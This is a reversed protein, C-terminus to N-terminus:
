NKAGREAELFCLTKAQVFIRSAGLDPAEIGFVAHAAALLVSASRM